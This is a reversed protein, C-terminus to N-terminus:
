INWHFLITCHIKHQSGEGQIEDRLPTRRDNQIVELYKRTYKSSTRTSFVQKKNVAVNLILCLSFKLGRRSLFPINKLVFYCM